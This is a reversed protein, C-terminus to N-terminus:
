MKDFFKLAPCCKKGQKCHACTLKGYLIPNIIFWNLVPYIVAILMLWEFGRSILLAIGVIVPILGVLIQPLFDKWTIERESFAKGDRKKFFLPAIKGRVFACRKGYYYCHRCGERYVSSELVVLFIVFLWGTICSLSFMIYLAALWTLLMVILVPFVIKFPYNEHLKAKKERQM